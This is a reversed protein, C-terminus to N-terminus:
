QNREEEDNRPYERERKLGAEKRAEKEKETRKGNVRWMAPPRRRQAHGHTKMEKQGHAAGWSKTIGQFL